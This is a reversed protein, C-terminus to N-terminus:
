KYRKLPSLPKEKLMKVSIWGKEILSEHVYHIYILNKVTQNLVSVDEYEMAPLSCLKEALKLRDKCDALETRQISREEFHKSLESNISKLKPLEKKMWDIKSQIQELEQYRYKILYMAEEATINGCYSVKPVFFSLVVFITLLTSVKM